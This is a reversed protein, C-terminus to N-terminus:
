RHPPHTGGDISAPVVYKYQTPTFRSDEALFPGDYRVVGGVAKVEGKATKLGIAEVVFLFSLAQGNSSAAHNRENSSVWVTDGALSTVKVEVHRLLDGKTCRLDYPTGYTEDNRKSVDKVTWGDDEYRARALAVARDEVRKRRIPDVSRGQGSPGQLAEEEAREPQMAAVPISLRPSGAADAMFGQAGQLHSHRVADIVNASLDVGVRLSVSGISSPDIGIRHPNRSPEGHEENPWFPTMDIYYPQNVTCLYCDTFQHEQGGTAGTWEDVPSRPSGGTYGSLVLVRDGQRLTKYDRVREVETAAFRPVPFGWVGNELGWELNKRASRPLAVVLVRSGYALARELEVDSPAPDPLTVFLRIQKTYNGSGSAEPDRGVPVQSRGLALRLAEFDPEAALELPYSRGQGPDLLRDAFPIGARRTDASDVVAADLVANLDGLRRLLLALGENYQANRVPRGGRSRFLVTRSDDTSEVEFHSDVATTGIFLQV